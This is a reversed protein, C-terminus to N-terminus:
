GVKGSADLSHLAVVGPSAMEAMTNYRKIPWPNAQFVNLIDGAGLGPQGYQLGLGTRITDQAVSNIRMVESMWNVTRSCSYVPGAGTVCFRKGTEDLQLSFNKPMGYDFSNLDSIGYETRASVKVGDQNAGRKTKIMIVV